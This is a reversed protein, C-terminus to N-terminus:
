LRDAAEVWLSLEVTANLPLEAAGVAVRSHRGAEGLVQVLLESAANMVAPQGHFGPASNVYGEVRLVHRVGELSGLLGKIAALANVVCIRAARQGEELTVSSGVPGTVVLQGNVFPLQGSTMVLAGMRTAPIYNGVAAPAPPLPMGLEQLRAEVASM